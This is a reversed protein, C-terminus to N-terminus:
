HKETTNKICSQLKIDKYKDEFNWKTDCDKVEKEPRKRKMQESAETYKKRGMERGPKTILWNFNGESRLM